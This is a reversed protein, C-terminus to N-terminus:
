ETGNRNREDNIFQIIDGVDPYHAEIGIEYSRMLMILGIEKMKAHDSIYFFKGLRKGVYYIGMKDNLKDFLDYADAEYNHYGEIDGNKWAITAMQYFVRAQGQRNNLEQQELLCELLIPKAENEKNFHMHLLALEFIVNCEEEKNNEEKFILRAQNFYNLAMSFDGTYKYQNGLGVLILGEEERNQLIRVLALGRELAKLATEYDGKKQCVTSIARLTKCQEYQHNLNEYELLSERFYYLANDFEGSSEYLKGLNSVVVAKMRQPGTDELIQWADQFRQMAKEFAGEILYILGLNNLSEARTLYDAVSQSITLSEQLLEYAKQFEKRDQHINSIRNLTAAEVIYNGRKRAQGLAENLYQLAKDPFGKKIYLESINNLTYGDDFRDLARQIALSREYYELAKDTQQLISYVKGISNCTNALAVQDNVQQEIAICNLLGPIALKYKGMEIYTNAMNHYVEYLEETSGTQQHLRLSKEFYQLAQEYAGRIKYIIGIRNITAIYVNEKLLAETRLSYDLSEQFFHKELFFNSLVAGIDNLMPLNGSIGFHNFAEELSKYEQFSDFEYIYYAGAKEHNFGANSPQYLRIWEKILPTVYYYNHAQGASPPKIQYAEILTLDKLVQLDPLFDYGNEQFELAVSRVPKYFYTLLTLTNLQRSTLIKLLEVFVIRKGEGTMQAHVTETISTLQQRLEHVQHFRNKYIENFIELARYNGGFKSYLLYSINTYSCEAHSDQMADLSLQLCKLYFDNFSVEGLSYPSIDPLESVPYRGSFIVPYKKLLNKQVYVVWEAHKELLPKAPGQQCSEMSDFVWIPICYKLTLQVLHDLQLSVDAFKELTVPIGIEGQEELFRQLTELISGFGIATENFAFCHFSSNYVKLRQVLHQVFATKGVGGQGTLFLPEHKRLKSILRASERRRGIFYYHKGFPSTIKAGSNTFRKNSVQFSTFPLQWDVVHAVSKSYYLQPILWQMAISASMEQQEQQQMARLALHYAKLLPEKEALHQFLVGAFLTAYSDLVSFGMAIVAPVGINLLADSLGFMGPQLQGKATQCSNLIVLAPMRAPAKNICEAVQQAAVLRSNFTEEEELLLYGVNDKYIGHGSFYLIHYYQSQIREQLSELTGCDTFDIQVQGSQLLPALAQEIAKEEQEYYLRSEIASDEPSSIMILVKLPGPQLEYNEAIVAQPLGKSLYVAPYQEVDVAMQWPLNLLEKDRHTVHLHHWNTRDGQASTWFHQLGPQGNLIRRLARILRGLHNEPISDRYELTRVLGHYCSRLDDMEDASLILEHYHM